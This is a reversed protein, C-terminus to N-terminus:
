PVWVIRYFAQPSTPSAETWQSTGATAAFSTVEQWTALDLSRQLSYARGSLLHNMRLTLGNGELQMELKEPTSNTLAEGTRKAVLQQFKSTGHLGDWFMYDAGPGTFVSKLDTLADPFVKTCGYAASNTYVQNEFTFIDVV